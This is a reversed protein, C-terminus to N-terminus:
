GDAKPRMFYFWIIDDGPEVAVKVIGVLMWGERGLENMEGESPLKESRPRKTLCRYEWRGRRGKGEEYVVPVWTGAQAPGDQATPPNQTKFGIARM